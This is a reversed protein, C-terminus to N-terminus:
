SYNLNPLNKKIKLKEIKKFNLDVHKTMLIDNPKGYMFFDDLTFNDREKKWWNNYIDYCSHIMNLFHQDRKLHNEYSTFHPSQPILPICYVKGNNCISFDVSGLLGNKEKQYDNQTNDIIFKDEVCYLRILKEAYYRNILCAGFYSDRTKPHLFFPIYSFSEFGLQICDWDFPIKNMLYEWDFHWYEILSLDYDDEMMIMYHDNTTELWLKIIELHTIFNSHCLPYSYTPHEIYLISKNSQKSVLLHNWKEYESTLYKSASIRRYNNIGWHDFQSEMYERRDTRNDLNTYYITPLGKLKNKLNM